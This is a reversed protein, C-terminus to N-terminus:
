KMRSPHICVVNDHEPLESRSKVRLLQSRRDKGGKLVYVEYGTEQLYDWILNSDGIQEREQSIELIIIPKFKFILDKAGELVPFEYGEVDIKLLDIRTDKLVEYLPFCDVEHANIGQRVISAGGRNAHPDASIVVKSRVAGLAYPHVSISRSFTNLALNKMLIEVTEPHAEFAHITANPFYRSVFLSMLGINAGVDVFVGEENFYKRIYDLIGKEYTGTEFLSLEVGHDNVPDIILKIGDPTNLIHQGVDSPKPLFIKPLVVSLRRIGRIDLDRLFSILRHRLPFSRVKV